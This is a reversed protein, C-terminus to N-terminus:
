PRDGQITMDIAYNKRAQGLSTTVEGPRYQLTAVIVIHFICSFYVICDQIDKSLLIIM